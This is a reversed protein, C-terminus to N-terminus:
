ALGQADITQASARASSPKDGEPAGELKDSKPADEHTKAPEGSPESSETKEPTASGKRSRKSPLSAWGRKIARRTAPSDDVLCLCGVDRVKRELICSAIIQIRVKKM